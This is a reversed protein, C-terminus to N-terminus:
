FQQNYANGLIYRATDGYWYGTTHGNVYPINYRGVIFAFEQGWAVCEVRDAERLIDNVDQTVGVPFTFTHNQITALVGITSGDNYFGTCQLGAHVPKSYSYPIGVLLILPLFLRALKSVM